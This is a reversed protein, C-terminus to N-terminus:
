QGKAISQLTSNRLSPESILQAIETATKTERKGSFALACTAATSNKLSPENIGDLAKTTARVDKANAADIALQALAGNRSNPESIANAADLRGQMAPDSTSQKGCASMLLVAALLLGITKM